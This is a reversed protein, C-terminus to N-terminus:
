ILEEELSEIDIIEKDLEKTEHELFRSSKLKYAEYTFTNQKRVVIGEEPVRNICMYCDKNNHLKELHLLFNARWEDINTNSLMDEDTLEVDQGVGEAYDYYDRARGYYIFTDSYNIGPKDKCFEEIQKDDLEISFGDPNTITIRYVYIKGEGMKCGYDYGGQIPSGDKTFGLYEGYLTWGKPIYEKVQEKIDGWVDTGYYGLSLNDYENKVVKRSSYIYDYVQTQINVGLKILTKEIWSLKRKTLVNGVVWSTGHKKYHIGIIDDPHINGINRRLNSTDNHLRFQNDVLRSVRKVFQKNGKGSGQQRKNRPIYKECIVIDAFSDFETGISSVSINADHYGGAILWEQVIDIPLVFGQSPEGRLKVARVRAHKNFYGKEEPNKNLTKDEFGDIFSILSKNIACELPFYVVVGGENYEMNTIVNQFDINWCLLRDANSHQRPTGLRVIKASYNENYNKSKNLM